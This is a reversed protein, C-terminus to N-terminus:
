VDDRVRNLLQEAAQFAAKAQLAELFEQQAQQNLEGSNCAFAFDTWGTRTLDLADNISQVAQALEPSAQADAPPLAYNDPITPPATGCATTRGTRQVDGWYQELLTLGGRQSRMNEILSYLATLHSRPNAISIDTTPPAATASVPVATAPATTPPTTPAEPQPAPEGREAASIAAEIEPLAQVANVLAAYTTGVEEVPLSQVQLCAADYRAYATTLSGHANNLRSVIDAIDPYASADAGLLQFPPANNFYASCDLAGGGLVSQFEAQLTVVDDRVSAYHQRLSSLLPDRETAPDIKFLGARALSVQVTRVVDVPLFQFALALATLAILLGLILRIWGGKNARRGMKGKQEVQELLRIVRKEKGHKIADEVARFMGLSYGAARRVSAKEDNEYLDVLRPVADAAAAEGLWYAAARREAPDDSDLQDLMDDIERQRRAPIDAM